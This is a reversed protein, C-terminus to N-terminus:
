SWAEPNGPEWPLESYWYLSSWVVILWIFLFMSSLFHGKAAFAIGVFPYTKDEKRIRRELTQPVSDTPLSGLPFRVGTLNLGNM